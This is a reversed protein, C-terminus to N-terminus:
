IHLLTKEFDSTDQDTEHIIQSKDAYYEKVDPRISDM